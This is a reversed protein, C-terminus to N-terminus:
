ITDRILNKTGRYSRNILFFNLKTAIRLTSSDCFKHFLERICTCYKEYVLLTNNLTTLCTACCVILPGVRIVLVVDQPETDGTVPTLSSAFSVSKENLVRRRAAVFAAAFRHPASTSTGTPSTQLAIPPNSATRRRFTDSSAPEGTNRSTSLTGNVNNESHQARTRSISANTSTPPHPDNPPSSRDAGKRPGDREDGVVAVTSSTLTPAPPRRSLRSPSPQRTHEARVADSTAATMAGAVQEGEESIELGRQMKMHALLAGRTPYHGTARVAGNQTRTQGGSAGSGSPSPSRSRSRSSSLPTARPAITVTPDIAPLTSRRKSAGCSVDLLCDVLPADSLGAGPSRDALAPSESSLQATLLALSRQRSDSENSLPEDPSSPENIAAHPAPVTNRSISRRRPAPAAVCSALSSLRSGRAASPSASAHVSGVMLAAATQAAPPRHQQPQPQPQAYARSWTSVASPQLQQPQSSTSLRQLLQDRLSRVGYNTTGSPLNSTSGTARGYHGFLDGLTGSGGAGTCTVASGNPTQKTPEQAGDSNTTHAAAVGTGASLLRSLSVTRLAPAAANAEATASAALPVEDLDLAGREGVSDTEDCYHANRARAVCPSQLKEPAAVPTSSRETTPNSSSKDDPAAEAEAGRAGSGGGKRMQNVAANKDIRICEFVHARHFLRKAFHLPRAPPEHLYAGPYLRRIEDAKRKALEMDSRARLVAADSESAM